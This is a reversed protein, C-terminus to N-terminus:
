EKVRLNIKELVGSKFFSTAGKGECILKFLFEPDRVISGCLWTIPTFKFVEPNLPTTPGMLLVEPIDELNELISHLTKNVLTSSTIIALKIKHSIDFIKFDSEERKNDIVWIKEVKGELKKFLPEFYGIMLIEDKSNLKIESFIDGLFANKLFDKKNNFIANITALGVSVELPHSSLYGKIIIDAPSKWFNFENGLDCCNRTEPLFTYALGVGGREIEVMTYHIGVCARKIRKARALSLSNEVLNKYINVYNM